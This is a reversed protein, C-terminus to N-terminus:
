RNPFFSWIFIRLAVIESTGTNTESLQLTWSMCASAEWLTIPSTSRVLDHCICEHGHQLRGREVPKDRLLLLRDRKQARFKALVTLARTQHRTSATVEGPYYNHGAEAMLWWGKLITGPM